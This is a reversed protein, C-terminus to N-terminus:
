WACAWRADRAAPPPTPVANLRGASATHSNQHGLVIGAVLVVRAFLNCHDFCAELVKGLNGLPASLDNQKGLRCDGAAGYQQKDRHEAQQSGTLNDGDSRHGGHEASDHRESRIDARQLLRGGGDASGFPKTGIQDAPDIEPEHSATRLASCAHAILREANGPPPSSKTHHRDDDLVATEITTLAVCMVSDPSRPVRGAARSMASMTPPPGPMLELQARSNAAFPIATATAALFGSLGTSSVRSFFCPTILSAQSALSGAATSCNNAFTTRSSPVGRSTTCLMSPRTGPMKRLPMTSASGAMANAVMRFAASLANRTPWCAAFSMSPLSGWALPALPVIM